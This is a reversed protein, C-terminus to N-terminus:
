IRSMSFDTTPPKLIFALILLFQFILMFTCYDKIYLQEDCVQLAEFGIFKGAGGEQPLCQDM